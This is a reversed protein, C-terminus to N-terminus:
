SFTTIQKVTSQVDKKKILVNWMFLVRFIFSKINGVMHGSQPSITFETRIQTISLFEPLNMAINYVVKAHSTNHCLTNWTRLIICSM